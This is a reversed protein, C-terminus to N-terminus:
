CAGCVGAARGADVPGCGGDPVDAARRGRVPVGDLVFVRTNVVPGGIHPVDGAGLAGSMTACVTTETPGYANVLVRGGGWRSVLGGDLVEGAAVLVSVPALGGVGGVALVAPPVTVHSVGFREVVGALGEGALVVGGGAVVLVGGSGLAMVVEWVSADFGPSAFQLVRCGAGVGLVGAQAVALSGLGCHSVVM